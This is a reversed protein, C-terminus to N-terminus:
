IDSAYRFVTLPWSFGAGACDLPLITKFSIRDNSPHRYSAVRGGGGGLRCTCHRVMSLCDTVTDLRVNAYGERAPTSDVM